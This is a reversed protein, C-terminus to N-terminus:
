ASSPMRSRTRDRPSPSTYLLCIASKPTCHLAEAIEAVTFFSNNLEQKKMAENVTELTDKNLEISHGLSILNEILNITQNLQVSLDSAQQPMKTIKEM